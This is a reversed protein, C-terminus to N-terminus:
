SCAIGKLRLESYNQLDIETFVTFVTFVTLRCSDNKTLNIETFTARALTTTHQEIRNCHM